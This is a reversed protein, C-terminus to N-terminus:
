FRSFILLFYQIQKLLSIVGLLLLKAILSVWINKGEGSATASSSNFALPINQEFIANADANAHVSGQSAFVFTEADTLTEISLPTQSFGYLFAISDSSAFTAAISPSATVTLTTLVPISTLVLNFRQQLQKLM